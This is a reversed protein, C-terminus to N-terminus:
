TWWLWVICITPLWGNRNYFKYKGRVTFGTTDPILTCNFDVRDSHMRLGGYGFLVSQLYGGMGTIFNTAGGGSAEETWVQSLFIFFLNIKVINTNISKESVTFAAVKINM